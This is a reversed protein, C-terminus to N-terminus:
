GRRGGGTQWLPLRAPGIRRGGGAYIWRLDPVQMVAVLAGVGGEGRELTQLTPLSIGAQMTIEAKTVRRDRRARRLLRIDLINPSKLLVIKVDADRMSELRQRHNPLAFDVRVATLSRVATRRPLRLLRTLTATPINLEQCRCRRRTM